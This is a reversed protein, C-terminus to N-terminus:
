RIRLQIPPLDRTIKDPGTAKIDVFYFENGMRLGNIANQMQQTLRPGTAELYTAFGQAYTVMRFSNIEYRLDFEFNELVAVVGPAALAAAKEITGTSLGGFKAVPPPIMRVRFTYPPFNQTRGDITASVIIQADKGIEAPEAIYDGKFTGVRGRRITGNTMRVSLRDSAVGPVSVDIPNQIGRYLVNMATPSVVVNPTAVSYASEFPYAIDTGDPAQMVILGGWRKDGTSSTRVRYVAKGSEDVPLTQYDGVMEYTPTGDPLTTRRYNGVMTRPAKTTDTAAVFVRAEYENGAMIFNSNTTVVPDIKNFKFSAADIQGYLFNLVETEANRVDVQFKSLITIVAVLPLAQFNANEWRETAGELNKPDDTNLSNKISEEAAVNRGGITELLFERYDNLQAKLFNAKGSQDSGILIESPVNNEDIKQIKHVNIVGDALVEDANKKEATRIIEVKLSHIYDFVEDAREKLEFAKNRYPGAKTPNEAYAREFELYTGQNKRIYNAVTKTLGEDVKKFAEVAEKSVNLALMATLVLYMMGIM